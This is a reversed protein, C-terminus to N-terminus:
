LEGEITRLETSSMKMRETVWDHFGSTIKAISTRPAYVWQMRSDGCPGFDIGDCGNNCRSVCLCVCLM